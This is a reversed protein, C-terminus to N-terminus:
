GFAQFGGHAKRGIDLDTPGDPHTDTHAGDRASIFGVVGPAGHAGHVSHIPALFSQAHVLDIPEHCRRIVGQEM